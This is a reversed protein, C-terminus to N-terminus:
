AVLDAADGDMEVRQEVLDLLAVPAQAFPVLLQVHPHALPGAIQLKGIQLQLRRCLLEDHRFLERRDALDGRADGMLDVVRDGDHLAIEVHDPAHDARFGVLGLDFEAQDVLLDVADALDHGLQQLESPGLFIGAIDLAM